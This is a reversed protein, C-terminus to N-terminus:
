RKKILNGFLNLYNNVMLKVDFKEEITKRANKIIFKLHRKKYIIKEINEILANEDGYEVLFGNFGHSIIEPIGGINTAIVPIESAMAEMISLPSQETKSPLIFADSAQYLFPMSHYDFFKIQVKGSLRAQEIMKLTKEMYNMEDVRYRTAPTAILFYINQLKINKITKILFEFGKYSTMRAPMVFITKDIPLQFIKRLEKKNFSFKKFININIGNNIKIIKEKTIKNKLMQKCGHECVVIIKNVKKAVDRFIKKDGSSGFNFIDGHITLVTPIKKMKCIDLIFPTLYFAHSSIIDPKFLNILHPIKSTDNSFISYNDSVRGLDPTMIAVEHKKSLEEALTLVIAERGGIYPFFRSLFLIKM